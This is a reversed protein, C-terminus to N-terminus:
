EVKAPDVERNFVAYNFGDPVRAWGVAFVERCGLSLGRRALHVRYGAIIVLFAVTVSATAAVVTLGEPVGVISSALAVVAGVTCGVAVGWTRRESRALNVAAKAPPLETDM